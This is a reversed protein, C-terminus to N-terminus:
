NARQAAPPRAMFMWVSALFYSISFLIFAPAYGGTLDYTLGAALPGISNAMLQFPFVFGTIAGLSRRGFYNALALNILLNTGGLVFGYVAAFIYASFIGSLIVLFGVSLSALFLACAACYRVPFREALFGWALGGIGGMVFLASSTGVAVLPPLGQDTLYPVLHLNVGAGVVSGQSIALTILWLSPTRMAEGLSWIPEDEQPVGGGGVVTDRGVTGDALVPDGDPRLGMSEPRQKLFLYSPIVAVAWVMFGLLAWALRWSYALIIIQCLPPMGAQGVRSGLNALGLARGRRRIFWNSITVNGALSTVGLVLGRGSSYLLYFQWLRKVLSVLLLCGGYLGQGAVMAVRPGYRDVLPGVVPALGAGILSGISIGLSVQARSWNFEQAMPKMFVALVPNFEGVETFHAAAITAVIIWGYFFRGRLRDIM